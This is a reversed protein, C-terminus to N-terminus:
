CRTDDTNTLSLTGTAPDYDVDNGACQFTPPGALLSLVTAKDTAV